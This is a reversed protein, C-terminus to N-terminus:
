FKVSTNNVKINKTNRIEDIKTQGCNSAISNVTKIGVANSINSSTNILSIKLQKMKTQKLMM